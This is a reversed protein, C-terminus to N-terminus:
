GKSILEDLTERLKVCDQIYNHVRLAVADEDLEALLATYFAEKEGAYDDNPQAAQAICPLGIQRLESMRHEQLRRPAKGARKHEFGIWVSGFKYVKDPDGNKAGFDLSLGAKDAVRQASRDTRQKFRGEPKM